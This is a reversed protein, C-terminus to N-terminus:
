MNENIHKIVFQQLDEVTRDGSYEINRNPTVLIITPYASINYYFALNENKGIRNQNVRWGEGRVRDTHAADFRGSCEAPFSFPLTHCLCLIPVPYGLKLM